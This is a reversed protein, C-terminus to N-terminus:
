AWWDILRPTATATLTMTAMAEGEATRIESAGGGPVAVPGTVPLLEVVRWLWVDGSGDGPIGIVGDVAQGFHTAHHVFPGDTPWLLEHLDTLLELAEEDTAARAEIALDIARVRINAPSAAAPTLTISAAPSLRHAKVPLPCAYLNRKNDEDTREKFTLGGSWATNAAWHRGIQVCLMSPTARTM